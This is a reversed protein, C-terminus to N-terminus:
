KVGNSRVRAVVRAAIWSLLVFSGWGVLGTLVLLIGHGVVVHSLGDIPCNMQSVISVLSAAALWIAASIARIKAPALYQSILTLITAPLIAGFSIRLCCGL